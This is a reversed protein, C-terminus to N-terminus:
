SLYMITKNLLEISDGLLGIAKNCTNCLLGRIEGTTHNHDVNLRRGNEEPSKGCIKCCHNQAEMMADFGELTLNYNIRLERSRRELKHADRYAKAKDKHADRYKKQVAKSPKSM